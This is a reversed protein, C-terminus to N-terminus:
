SGISGAATPTLAETRLPVKPHGEVCGSCWRFCHRSMKKYESKFTKFYFHWQLYTITHKSLVTRYIKHIFIRIYIWYPVLIVIAKHVIHVFLVATDYINLNVLVALNNELIAIGSTCLPEAESCRYWCM